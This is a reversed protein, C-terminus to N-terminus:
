YSGGFSNVTLSYDIRIGQDTRVGVSGHDVAEANDSPTDAPNLCFCPHQSLRQIKDCRLNYAELKGATQHFPSRCSVKCQGNGLHEALFAYDALEDFEVARTQSVDAQSVASSDSVHRRFVPCGDAEERYVFFRQGVQAAGATRIFQNLQDTIVILCLAHETSGVGRIRLEAIHDLKIQCRHNWGQGSRFTRLVTDLQRVHFLIKFADDACRDIFAAVAEAILLDGFHYFHLM